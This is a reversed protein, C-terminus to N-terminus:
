AGTTNTEAYPPKINLIKDKEATVFFSGIIRFDNDKLNVRFNNDYVYKIEISDYSFNLSFYNELFKTVDKITKVTLDM